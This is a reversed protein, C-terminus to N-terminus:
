SGTQRSLRLRRPMPRFIGFLFFVSLAAGASNALRVDAFLCHLLVVHDNAFSYFAFNLVVVALESFNLDDSYFSDLFVKEELGNLYVGM